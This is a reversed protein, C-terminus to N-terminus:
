VKLCGKLRFSFKVPAEWFNRVGNSKRWTSFLVCVLLAIHIRSKLVCRIRHIQVCRLAERFIVQRIVQRFIILIRFTPFNVEWWSAIEAWQSDFRQQRACGRSCASNGTSLILSKPCGPEGNWAPKWGSFAGFGMSPFDSKLSWPFFILMAFVLPLFNHKRSVTSARFTWGIGGTSFVLNVSQSELKIVERM